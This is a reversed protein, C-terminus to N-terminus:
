QRPNNSDAHHEGSDPGHRHGQDGFELPRALDFVPQECGDVDDPDSDFLDDRAHNLGHHSSQDHYRERPEDKPPTCVDTDM